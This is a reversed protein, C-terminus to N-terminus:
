TKILLYAPRVFRSGIKRLHRNKRICRRLNVSLRVEMDDRSIFPNTQMGKQQSIHMNVQTNVFARPPYNDLSQTWDFTLGIKRMKRNKYGIKRM